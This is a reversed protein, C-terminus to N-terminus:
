QASTVAIAASGDPQMTISGGVFFPVAEDLHRISGDYISQIDVVIHAVAQTRDISWNGGDPSLTVVPQQAISWVPASVIRNQVVLGFPCGTPQLVQQTACETLFSDVKGQVVEVFESTPKTQIDVPISALPTDSLVAVGPSTSVATDVAISYLGPSFVLLAVPSLPDAELEDPSVQRTDVAFGNVTFKTAGRVTLDIAALPSKEFRWTPAIGVRGAREVRFTSTGQHPGATYSVTVTTVGDDGEASSVVTMDTLTTLAASRLLAESADTPLGAATLGSSDVSVGPLALAEAAQGHSLLELYRSVFASPSYLDKYVVAGAAGLAGVLLIGVVALATLDRRLTRRRAASSRPPQTAADVTEGDTTTDVPM